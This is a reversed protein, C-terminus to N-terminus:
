EDRHKETAETDRHHVPARRQRSAEYLVISAAMGANLSEVGPAHPISVQGDVQRMIEKPLGAGENGILVVVGGTLDAEDVAMGKHSSTALLKLGRDRLAALVAPFEAGVVPLRFLSGASARVVKPNYPSVTGAGVLLGAAGFAEASRIITGLNGPDQVGAAAVILPEPAALLDDLKHVKLRVLAAVGQPTDTAVVSQFVDDPLLLIEVNASFQPLLRGARPQASEAFFVDRFRLGSRIAEEITRVSEIAISGDAAPEGDHFARRLEKVLSNQRSSVRRLRDYEAM